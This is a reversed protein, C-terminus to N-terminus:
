IEDMPVHQLKISCPCLTEQTHTFEERDTFNKEQNFIDWHYTTEDSSQISFLYTNM